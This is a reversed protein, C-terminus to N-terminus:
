IKAVNKALAVFGLGDNKGVSCASPLCGGCRLVKPLLLHGHRCRCAAARRPSAAATPWCPPGFSSPELRGGFSLLFPFPRIDVPKCCGAQEVDVVFHIQEMHTLFSSNLLGPELMQGLGLAVRPPAARPGWLWRRLLEWPWGPRVSAGRCAINWYCSETRGYIGWGMSSWRQSSPPFRETELCFGGPFPHAEHISLAVYRIFRPSSLDPKLTLKETEGAAASSYGAHAPTSALTPLLM